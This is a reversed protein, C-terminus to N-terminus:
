KQSTTDVVVNNVPLYKQFTQSVISITTQQLLHYVLLGENFSHNIISRALHSQAELHMGVILLPFRDVQICVFMM